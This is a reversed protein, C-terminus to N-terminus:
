GAEKQEQPVVQPVVRAGEAYWALADASRKVDLPNIEAYVSLTIEIREHRAFAQTVKPNGDKRAHEHIFSKRLSHLDVDKRNIKARKCSGYFKRLLNPYVSTGELTTFIRDDANAKGQRKRTAKYAKLREVLRKPMPLTAENHNKAIGARVTFTGQRLDLDSWRMESLEYRRLGTGLAFEWILDTGNVSNRPDLLRKIEVASLARRHKTRHEKGVSLPKVIEVSIPLACTQVGTM